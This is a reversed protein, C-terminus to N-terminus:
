GPVEPVELLRVFDDKSIVGQEPDRELSGDDQEVLPAYLDLLFELRGALTEPAKVPGVGKPVGPM